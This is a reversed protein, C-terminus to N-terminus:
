GGVQYVRNIPDWGCQICVWYVQEGIHAPEVSSGWEECRESVNEPRM